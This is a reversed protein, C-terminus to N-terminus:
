VLSAIKHAVATIKGAFITVAVSHGCYVCESITEIPELTEGDLLESFGHEMCKFVNKKAM